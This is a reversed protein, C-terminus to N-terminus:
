LKNKLTKIYEEQWFKQNNVPYNKTLISAIKIPWGEDQSYRNLFREEIRNSYLSIKKQQM